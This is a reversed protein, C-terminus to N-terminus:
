KNNLIDNILRLKEIPLDIVGYAGIKDRIIKSLNGIELENDYEEKSLYVKYAPSYGRGDHLLTEKNFRDGILPEITFYKKGVSKIIGEKLGDTYRRSIGIYWVKEDVEM